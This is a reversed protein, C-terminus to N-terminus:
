IMGAKAFYELFMILYNIIIINELNHHSALLVLSQSPFKSLNWFEKFCVKPTFLLYFCFFFLNAKLISLFSLGCIKRITFSIIKIFVLIRLAHKQPLYYIFVSFGIKSRFHKSIAISKNAKLISLFSLECRKRITCSIKIFVM